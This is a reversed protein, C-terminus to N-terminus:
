PRGGDFDSAAGAGRAVHVRRKPWPEIRLCWCGPATLARGLVDRLVQWSPPTEPDVRYRLDFREGARPGEVFGTLEIRWGLTPVPAYSPTEGDQWWARAEEHRRADHRAFRVAAEDACGLSVRALMRRALAEQGVRARVHALLRRRLAQKARAGGRRALLSAAQDIGVIEVVDFAGELDLVPHVGSTIGHLVGAPDGAAEALLSRRVGLLDFALPVLRDLERLVDGRGGGRTALAVGVMNIAVTSLATIDGREFRLPDPAEAESLRFWRSGRTREGPADIWIQPEGIEAAAQMAQGVLARGAADKSASRALRLGLGVRLDHGERDLHVREQMLARLVRTASEAYDGYTRGPPAPEPVPENALHPPVEASLALELRLVGGRGLADGAASWRLGPALLFARVASTLADADLHALFPALFVNVHELTLVRATHPAYRCVMEEIAQTVRLPGDGRSFGEGMRQRALVQAVDLSLASVRLVAGPDYSHLVGAAIAETIASPLRHQLLHRALLTEGIGENFSAPSTARRDRLGRALAADLAARELGSRPDDVLRCAHGRQFMEASVLARLLPGQINAVRSSLIRAEVTRAVDEAEAETIGDGEVLARVIRSKSWGPVLPTDDSPTEAGSRAAPVPAVGEMFPEPSLPGVALAALPSASAEPRPSAGALEARTLRAGARRNRYLIYAKATRAHGAEILVREVIDQVDEIGPVTDPRGHTEGLQWTVVGALEEALFRDEGGVAQAARFIAEAIKERRFPVVRGDRKRVQRPTHM